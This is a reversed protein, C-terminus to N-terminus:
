RSGRDRPLGTVRDQSKSLHSLPSWADPLSIYMFDYVSKSIMYDDCRRVDLMKIRWRFKPRSWDRFRHWNGKGPNFWECAHGKHGISFYAFILFLLVTGDPFYQQAAVLAQYVQLNMFVNLSKKTENFPLLRENASLSCSSQYSLALRQQLSRAQCATNNIM